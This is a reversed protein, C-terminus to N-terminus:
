WKWTNKNEDTNNKRVKREQDIDIEVASTALSCALLRLEASTFCRDAGPIRAIFKVDVDVESSLIPLHLKLFHM